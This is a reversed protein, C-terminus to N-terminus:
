NGMPGSVGYARADAATEHYERPDVASTGTSDGAVLRMRGRATYTSHLYRVNANGGADHGAQVQTSKYHDNIDIVFFPAYPQRTGGAPGMVDIGLPDNTMFVAMDQALIRTGDKSDHLDPEGFVSMDPKNLSARDRIQREQELISRPGLVDIYTLVSMLASESVYQAQMAQRSHGAARIEYSTTHISFVGLATVSLLVVMVVMMVAGEERPKPPSPNKTPSTNM